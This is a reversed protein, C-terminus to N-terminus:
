ALTSFTLHRFLNEILLVISIGARFIQFSGLKEVKLADAPVREPVLQLSSQIIALQECHYPTGASRNFLGNNFNNSM